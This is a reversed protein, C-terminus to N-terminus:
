AAMDLAAGTCVKGTYYIYIERIRTIKQSLMRNQAIVTAIM